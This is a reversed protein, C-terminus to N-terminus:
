WTNERELDNFTMNKNNFRKSLHHNKCIRVTFKNKHDYYYIM